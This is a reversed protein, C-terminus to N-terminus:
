PSEEPSKAAGRALAARADAALAEDRGALVQAAAAHLTGARGYAPWRALEGRAERYRAAAQAPAVKIEAELLRLRLGASAYAALATRAEALTRLAQADAGRASQAEALLIRAGLAQALSHAADALAVADRASVEAAAADGDRLRLEAERQARMAQQERSGIGAAPLGALATRAAALDNSEILSQIRVLEAEVQGRQDELAVFLGQAQESQTLSQAFRGEIRALDALSVLAVAREEAMQLEEARHLSAELSQRAAALDGRAIEALALGQQARVSGSADDIAAYTQNAQRWYVLANDFEGVQAYAFGVNILSEGIMRQDGQTQRFGLAERYRELAERFDGREEALVGADNAVDALAAADGLPELLARAQVLAARADDHRGLYALAVALNRRSVAEGRADGLAHRARIATEYEEAAEAMRGLNRYGVGFANAIEARWRRDDLRKALVLARVLYDDVATKADGQMIAFKGRLFWAEVNREDEGLLAQLDAEARDFEGLEARARALVLRAPHDSPRSQVLPALLSVAGDADGVLLSAYGRLRQWASPTAQAPGDLLARARSRADLSRAEAELAALERWAAAAATVAPDVDSTAGLRARVQALLPGVTADAADPAFDSSTLTWEPTAVGDKRAVVHLRLGDAVRELRGQILREAHLEDAVRDLHDGVNGADFGLVRLARAVREGDAVGPRSQAQLGDVLETGIRTALAQQGPADAVFPLVAVDLTAIAAVAPVPSPSEGARWAWWGAAAVLSLVLLAAGIRVRRPAHDSITPILRAQAIVQAIEGTDDFRQAARRRLLRDTLAIVWPPLDPREAQLSPAENVVRQTMMEAATGGAFPLRGTLMERLILGLAYQDSRGDLPEALAQEPSLYDPTGVVMGTGTMRTAGAARAVGFDSIYANGEDDLLVNAPKLDRHVVGRAHAAALGLALQRAVRLAEDLPVPTGEDIRAELSRGAIFDMSIMWTEGHQVLDHIRVVHPSSVQRALLLEQRFRAFAEPRRALEPRLVKLAVRVGLQEDMAEYVLGMAGMGLLRVIRFRDAIRTGPSLDAVAFQGTQTAALSGDSM